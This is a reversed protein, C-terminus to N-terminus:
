KRNRNKKEKRKKSNIKLFNNMHAHMTQAIVEGQEGSGRGEVGWGEEGV